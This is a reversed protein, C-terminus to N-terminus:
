TSARPSSGPRRTSRSCSSTASATIGGGAALSYCQTDGDADTATLPPGIPEGEAIVRSGLVIEKRGVDFRPAANRGSGRTRNTVAQGSFTAVENGSGDELRNDTGSAPRTYGVTVTDGPSVAQSLALTVTDGDIAPSGTLAAAQESGGCATKTVAFAGNALNAAAALAENFNITLETGDVRADRVVPPADDTTIVTGSSPYPDSALPGERVDTDDVFSVEVILKRDADTGTLTYDQSTAGPIAERNSAGDSDVRVWQYTYAYGADGNEAMTKGNPDAIDSTSATLVGGLVARGSVAPKGTANRPDPRGRAASM